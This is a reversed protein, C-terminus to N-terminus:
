KQRAELLGPCNSAPFASNGVRGRQLGDLEGQHAYVKLAQFTGRVMRQTEGPVHSTGKVQDLDRNGEKDRSVATLARSSPPCPYLTVVLAMLRNM